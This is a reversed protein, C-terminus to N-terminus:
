LEVLVKRRSSKYKQFYSSFLAFTWLINSPSNYNPKQHVNRRWKNEPFHKRLYYIELNTLGSKAPKLTLPNIKPMSLLASKLCFGKIHLKVKAHKKQTSHCAIMHAHWSYSILMPIPYGFLPAAFLSHVVSVPVENRSQKIDRLEYNISLKYDM